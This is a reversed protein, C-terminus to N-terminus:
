PMAKRWAIAMEKLRATVEPKAAALNTTENPDAVVDYLEAGTGDANVLLKWDGDRVAM